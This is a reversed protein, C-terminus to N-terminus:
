GGSAAYLQCEEPAFLSNGITFEEVGKRLLIRTPRLSQGTNTTKTRIPAADHMGRLMAAMEADSAASFDHLSAPKGTRISQATLLDAHWIQSLLEHVGGLYGSRGKVLFAAAEATNAFGDQCQELLGSTVLAYLLRSLREPPVGLAAALEAAARAM